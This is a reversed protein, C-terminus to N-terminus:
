VEVLEGSWRWALTFWINFLLFCVSSAVLMVVFWDLYWLYYFINLSSLALTLRVYEAAIVWKKNEFIAGCIMTSLIILAAFVLKYVLPLTEFHYLFAVVGGIIVLFQALIYANFIPSVETNYKQYRNHDIEHPHQFGGLDEPLWGPRAIIMRLKDKWNSMKRAAQWMELYYHLNAWTPNWSKLQTTTGYTPEEEEAQFTDFMRDWIIFVAAYNKDLYKVDSGHHVRHHSPTNMIYEFWRPFKDITRTHIWFQYLSNIGLIPFFILPDFGMFPIPLFIFFAILNHIWSQRLAVSLNYEESQHHVIHAGWFFNVEHGWRHAWYYFFDFIIFCVIFSMVTPAQHYPALYEYVFLYSGVLAVKYLIGLVQNGIGINLNTISDNFRYYEKKQWWAVGLEIGILLFFFPIALIMFLSEM